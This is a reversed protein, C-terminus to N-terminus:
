ISIKRDTNSIIYYEFIKSINWIHCYIKMAFFMPIIKFYCHNQIIFIHLKYIFVETAFILTESSSNLLMRVCFINWLILIRVSKIILTFHLTKAIKRCKNWNCFKLWLLFFCTNEKELTKPGNESLM